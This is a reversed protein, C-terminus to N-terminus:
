GGHRKLGEIVSGKFDRRFRWIGLLYIWFLCSIYVILYDSWSLLISLSSLKYVESPIQFISLTGLLKNFFMTFFYALVSAVGWLITSLIFLIKALENKALGLAQYLFIEQAKKELLFVLFAFLNLIAILVVIQFLLTIVRKEVRIAEFLGSFEYTYSRVRFPYLFRNEIKKKLSEIEDSSSADIRVVNVLGKSGLSNELFKRSVQVIRMNKEHIKYDISGRVKFRKLLPQGELLDSGKPFGITVFEEGFLQKFIGEGVVVEDDELDVGVVQIGGSYNNSTLFAESQIAPTVSKAGLSIIEDEEVKGFSFFGEKSTLTLSGVSEILAGKLSQDFGDMIGITSLVVSMSFALGLIVGVLFRLIRSDIMMSLLVRIM